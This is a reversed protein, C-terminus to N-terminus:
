RSSRSVTRRRPPRLRAMPIRCASRSAAPLGVLAPAQVEDGILHGVPTAEADQGHDVVARTLAQGQHGVCRQRPQLTARSSSAIMMSWRPRGSVMTLSLPM